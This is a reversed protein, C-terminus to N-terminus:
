GTVPINAVVTLEGAVSVPINAVVTLEGAVSILIAVSILFASRASRFAILVLASTYTRCSSVDPSSGRIRGFVCQDKPACLM